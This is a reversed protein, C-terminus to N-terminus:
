YGGPWILRYYKRSVASALPVQIFRDVGNDFVQSTANHWATTETISDAEQLQFTPPLSSWSIQIVNTPCGACIFPRFDARLLPIPSFQFITTLGLGDTGDASNSFMNTSWIRSALGAPSNFAELYPYRTDTVGPGALQSLRVDMLLNGRTPDYHFPQSFYIALPGDPTNALFQNNGNFVVVDDPGVNASFTTSLSGPPNTTTSLHIELNTVTWGFLYNSFSSQLLFEVSTVYRLGSDLNTFLTSGYVQQYRTTLLVNSSYPYIQNILLPLYTPTPAGRPAPVTLFRHPTFLFRTTLGISDVDGALPMQSNTTWVRSVGDTLSNFATLTPLSSDFPGSGDFIRVDMLLNGRHPDYRFSDDLFIGYGADLSYAPGSAFRHQAPGFVVQEDSGTNESLVPSLADATKPTISFSIQLNPVTWSPLPAQPPGQPFFYLRELYSNADLDQFLSSDFVQQYHMNTLGAQKVLFPFLTSVSATQGSPATVTSDADCIWVSVVGLALLCLM